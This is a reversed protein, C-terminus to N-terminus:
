KKLNHELGIKLKPGEFLFQQQKMKIHATHCLLSHGRFRLLPGPDRHRDGPCAPEGCRGGLRKRKLDQVWAEPCVEPKKSAKLFAPFFSMQMIPLFRRDPYWLHQTSPWSGVARLWWHPFGTPDPLDSTLPPAPALPCRWPPLLFRWVTGALTHLFDSGSM